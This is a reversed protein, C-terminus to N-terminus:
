FLRFNLATTQANTSVIPTMELANISAGYGAFNANVTGAYRLITDAQLSRGEMEVVKGAQKIHVGTLWLGPQSIRALTLLHGAYGDMSGLDGRRYRDMIEEAEAAQSKLIALEAQVKAPDMRKALVDKMAQLAASETKLQGQLQALQTTLNATQVKLLQWYAILCVAVLATIAVATILPAKPQEARRKFLNIQQTM